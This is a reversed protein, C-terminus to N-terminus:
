VRVGGACKRRHTRQYEKKFDSELQRALVTHANYIDWEQDMLACQAVARYIYMEEYPGSGLLEKAKDEPWRRAGEPAPGCYRPLFVTELERELELVWRALEEETATNPRLQKARRVCEGLTM